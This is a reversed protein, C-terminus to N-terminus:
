ETQTTPDYTGNGDFPYGNRNKFLMHKRYVFFEGWFSLETYLPSNVTWCPTSLSVYKDVTEKTNPTLFLDSRGDNNTDVGRISTWENTGLHAIYTLDSYVSEWENEVEGNEDLEEHHIIEEERLVYGNLTQVKDYEDFKLELTKQTSFATAYTEALLNSGDVSTDTPNFLLRNQTQGIETVRDAVTDNLTRYTLTEVTITEGDDNSSVSVGNFDMSVMSDAAQPYSVIDGSITIREDTFFLLENEAATLDEYGEFKEWAIQLNYIDALSLTKVNVIYQHNSYFGATTLTAGTTIEQQVYTTKNAPAVIIKKYIHRNSATSQNGGDVIKCMNFSVMFVCFREVGDTPEYDHVFLAAVLAAASAYCVSHLQSNTTLGHVFATAGSPTVTSTDCLCPRGSSQETIVGSAPSTYAGIRDAYPVSGNVEEGNNLRKSHTIGCLGLRLIIPEKPYFWWCQTQWDYDLNNAPTSDVAPVSPAPTSTSPVREAHQDLSSIQV